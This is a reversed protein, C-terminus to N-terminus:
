LLSSHLHASLGKILSQVAAVHRVKRSCSMTRQCAQTLSYAACVHQTDPQLPLLEICTRCSSELQPFPAYIQCLIQHLAIANGMVSSVRRPVTLETASMHQLKSGPM